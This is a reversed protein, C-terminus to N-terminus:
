VIIIIGSLAPLLECLLPRHRSRKVQIQDEENQLHETAEASQEVNDAKRKGKKAKKGGRAKSRDRLSRIEVPPKSTTPM